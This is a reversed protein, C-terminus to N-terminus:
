LFKIGGVDRLEEDFVTVAEFGNSSLYKIIKEGDPHSHVSGFFYVKRGCVGSAGGIFGYNYGELTINGANIELVDKGDSKIAKAMSKDATVAHNEDLVLVSCSSYGQKVNIVSYGNLKAFDLIEVAVSKISCFISKGMVLVNLGVDHPYKPLCKKGVKIINYNQIEKFREKNQDYYDGYCFINKGIICFLMDAHSAVPTDLKEYPFLPLTYIGSKEFFDRSVAKSVLAIM